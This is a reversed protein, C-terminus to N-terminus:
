KEHPEIYFVLLLIAAAACGVLFLWAYAYSGSVDVLFGFLPPCILSGMFGWFYGAGTALGIFEKGLSEGLITLYIANWGIGSIGFALVAILTFPSLSPLFSILGLFFSSLLMIGTIFLLIGKRRGGLYYDSILSWFLRAAAGALYSLAFYRGAQLVSFHLEATLFLTLYASFCFQSAMFCFGIGGLILMKCSFAVQFIRKPVTTSASKPAVLPSERIMKYIFFALLLEAAGVLFLSQRWSFYFALAPLLIGALIGGFNVGTQKVGMATARGAAPFWDMVSRSSAPIIVGSGLGYLFLVALAALFSPSLSLAALFFGMLAVSLSLIIRVGLRDTIVGAPIQSLSAGVSLVSIFLGIQTSTLLLDTKIFPALTGLSAMNMFSIAHGLWLVGVIVWRYSATPCSQM